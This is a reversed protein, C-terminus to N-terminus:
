KLEDKIAQLLEAETIKSGAPLRLNITKVLGTVIAITKKDVPNKWNKKDDASMPLIVQYAVQNINTFVEPIVDTTGVVRIRSWDIGSFTNGDIQVMDREVNYSYNTGHELPTSDIVYVFNTEAKASVAMLLLIFLLKKM